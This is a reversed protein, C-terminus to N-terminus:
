IQISLEMGIYLYRYLRLIRLTFVPLPHGSWFSFFLCSIEKLEGITEESLSSFTSIILPGPPCVVDTMGLFIPKSIDTHTFEM